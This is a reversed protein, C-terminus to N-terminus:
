ASLPPSSWPDRDTMSFFSNSSIVSYTQGGVTALCKVLKQGLSEGGCVIPLLAGSVEEAEESALQAMPM